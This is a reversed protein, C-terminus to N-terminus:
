SHVVCFRPVVSYDTGDLRRCGLLAIQSLAQWPASGDAARASEACENIGLRLNTITKQHLDTGVISEEVDDPPWLLGAAFLSSRAWTESVMLM